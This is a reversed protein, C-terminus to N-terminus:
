RHELLYGIGTPIIPILLYVVAIDKLYTIFEMKMPGWSFVLADLGLNVALWILGVCYGSVFVKSHVSRFYRVSTVTVALVLGVPVISEFLIRESAHLPFALLAVLFTFVWIGVGYLVSAKHDM